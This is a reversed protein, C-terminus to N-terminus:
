QDTKRSTNAVNPTKGIHSMTSGHLSNAPSSWPTVTPPKQNSHGPLSELTGALTGDNVIDLCMTSSNMMHVTTNEGINSTNGSKSPTESTDMDNVNGGHNSMENNNGIDIYQGAIFEHMVSPTINHIDEFIDIKSQLTHLVDDIGFDVCGM